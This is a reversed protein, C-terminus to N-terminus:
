ARSLVHREFIARLPALEPYRPVVQMVYDIFRPTDALYRPKGDRLTLRAFIGLVKLHRQLGMWDCDALFDGRAAPVPLGAACAREHLRGLGDAVLGPPWSAFADRYLSVADYSVPGIVADQFDIIGPADAGDMLNRPMYDRHVYVRGQALARDALLDEVANLAAREDDTLIVGLHRGLFWEAFLGTERLLLARDYEPLTGPRTAGQWCILAEGARGFYDAANDENMAQLYTRTGLDSILLFGRDLDAAHIEPVRLGADRMLGAVHVFADNDEHEPPADMVIWTGSASSIRFYRRFSADASAVATAFPGGGACSVAWRVADRARADPLSATPDAPDSIMSSM